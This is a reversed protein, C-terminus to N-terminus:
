GFSDEKAEKADHLHPRNNRQLALGIQLQRMAYREKQSCTKNDYCYPCSLGDRYHPHQRDTEQLPTRCAHCATLSQSPKLGHTVAVRRDFVYCDGEFTSQDPPVTDLYGLIGGKLHYVNTDPFLRRALSTAKECRIGGTCFMAIKQPPSSQQQKQNALWAPFDSFNETQPNVANRFTGVRVEYDNRTDVVLCDPDELLADWDPGPQVYEGVLTTPDITDQDDDGDDNGMSIISKKIKVKLRYFVNASDYSIRILLKPFLDKLHSLLADTGCPNPYCITGNIGETSLILAGRAQCSRCRTELDDRLSVLSSSELKPSVFNYLALVRYSSETVSAMPHLNPFCPHVHSCVCTQTIYIYMNTHM